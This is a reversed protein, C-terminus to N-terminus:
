IFWRLLKIIIRGDRPESGSWLGGTPSGQFLNKGDGPSPKSVQWVKHKCMQFRAARQSQIPNHWYSNLQIIPKKHRSLFAVGRLLQEVIWTSICTEALWITTVCGPGLWSFGVHPALQIVAHVKRSCRTLMFKIPPQNTHCLCQFILSFCGLADSVPVMFRQQLAGTQTCLSQKM